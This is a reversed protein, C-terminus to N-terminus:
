PRLPGVFQAPFVYGVFKYQSTRGRNLNSLPLWTSNVVGFGTWNMESVLIKGNQVREVWGVHGYGGDSWVIISQARADYANASVRWRANRANQFWQAANGRWNIKPAPAVSDFKQAAYNTCNGAPFGKYAGQSFGISFCVLLMSISAILKAFMSTKNKSLM